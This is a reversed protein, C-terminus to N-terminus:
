PYVAQSGPAEPWPVLHPDSNAEMVGNEDVVQAPNTLLAELEAVNSCQNIQDQRQPGTLRVNDRYQQWEPELDQGTEAKRTVMWDCCGLLQGQETDVQTTYQVKLLDLDRPTATYAGSDDPGTVYYFRDDPRMQIAVEVFGLQNFTDRTAGARTYQVDGYTFARREYYRKSTAQDLFFTSM